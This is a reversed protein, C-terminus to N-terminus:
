VPISLWQTIIILAKIYRVYEDWSHEHRQTAWGHSKGLSLFYFTFLVNNLVNKGNTFKRFLNLYFFLL